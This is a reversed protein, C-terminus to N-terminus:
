YSRINMNLEISDSGYKLMVEETQRENFKRGAELETMKICYHLVRWKRKRFIINRLYVNEMGNMEAM